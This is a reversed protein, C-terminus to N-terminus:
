QTQILRHFEVFDHRDIQTPNTMDFLQRLLFQRNLRAQARAIDPRDLAGIDRGGHGDKPLDGGSQTDLWGFKHRFRALQSM